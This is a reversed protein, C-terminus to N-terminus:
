NLNINHKLFYVSISYFFMSLYTQNKNQLAKIFNWIELMKNLNEWKKEIM